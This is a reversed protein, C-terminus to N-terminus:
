RNNIAFLQCSLVNVSCNGFIGGLFDNLQIYLKVSSQHSITIGFEMKMSIDNFCHSGWNM